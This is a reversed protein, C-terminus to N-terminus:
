CRNKRLFCRCLLRNEARVLLPLTVIGVACSYNLGRRLRAPSWAAMVYFPGPYRAGAEGSLMKAKNAKEKCTSINQM